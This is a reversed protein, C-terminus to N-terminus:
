LDISADSDGQSLVNAINDSRQKNDAILENSFDRLQNGIDTLRIIDASLQIIDTRLRDSKARLLESQARLQETESTQNTINYTM